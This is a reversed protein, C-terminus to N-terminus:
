SLRDSQRSVRRHDDIDQVTSKPTDSRLRRNPQKRDASSEIAAFWACLKIATELRSGQFRFAWRRRAPCPRHPARHAIGHLRNYFASGHRFRDLPKAVALVGMDLIPELVTVALYAGGFSGIAALDGSELGHGYVAPRHLLLPHTLRVDM